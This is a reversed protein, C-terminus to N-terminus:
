ARREAIALTDDASRADVGILIEDVVAAVSDIAQELTSGENAVTMCLTITPRRRQKRAVEVLADGTARGGAADGARRVRAPTRGLAPRTLALVDPSDFLVLDCQPM